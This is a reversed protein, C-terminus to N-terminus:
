RGQENESDYYDTYADEAEHELQSVERARGGFARPPPTPTGPMAGAGRGGQGATRFSRLIASRMQREFETVVSDGTAECELSYHFGRGCKVCVDRSQEYTGPSLPFPRDMTPQRGRNLQKWQEVRSAYATRAEQTDPLVAPFPDRLPREGPGLPQLPTPPRPPLQPMHPPDQRGPTPRPIPTVTGFAVQPTRPATQHTPFVPFPPPIPAQSGPTSPPATAPSLNQRRMASPRPFPQYMPITPSASVSLRQASAVLGQFTSEYVYADYLERSPIKGIDDCLEEFADGYRSKKPLLSVVWRPVSHEVTHYVLDTDTSTCARGKALHQKAWVEHPRTTCMEDALDSVMTSVDLHSADWRRRQQEAWVAPDRKPTPWRKEVRIALKAWDVVDAQEDATGRKLNGLWEYAEGEYVLKDAWLQARQTDDLDRTAIIFQHRWEAERMPKGEDDFNDLKALSVRAARLDENKTSM